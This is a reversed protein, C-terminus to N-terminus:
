RGLVEAFRARLGMCAWGIWGLIACSPRSDRFQVGLCDCTGYLCVTGVIPGIDDTRYPFALHFRVALTNVFWPTFYEGGIRFPIVPVAFVSAGHVAPVALRNAYKHNTPGSLLLRSPM